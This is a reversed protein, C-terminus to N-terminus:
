RDLPYRCEGEYFIGDIWIGQFTTGDTMIKTGQGNYKGTSWQGEYVSGNDVCLEVLKGYM